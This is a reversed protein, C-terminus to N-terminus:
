YHDNHDRVGRSNGQSQGLPRRPKNLLRQLLQRLQNTDEYHCIWELSTIQEDIGALNEPIKEPMVVIPIEADHPSEKRLERAIRLAEESTKGILNILLLDIHLDRLRTTWELADEYSTAVLVRYGYERLHTTLAPRAHNDEEILFITHRSNTRQQM